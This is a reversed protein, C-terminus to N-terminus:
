GEIAAATLAFRRPKENVLEATGDEALKDLANSVAGVSRELARGIDGPTFEMGARNPELLFDEVLGRLAGKPLREGGNGNRSQGRKSSAAAGVKPKATADAKARQPGEDIGSRKSAGSATSAAGNAASVRGKGAVPRKTRKTLPAGTKGPEATDAPSAAVTRARSAGTRSKAASRPASRTTSKMASAAKPPTETTSSM